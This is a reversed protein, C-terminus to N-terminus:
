SYSYFDNLALCQEAKLITATAEFNLGKDVGMKDLLDTKIKDVDADNSTILFLEIKGLSAEILLREVGPISGIVEHYWRNNYKM